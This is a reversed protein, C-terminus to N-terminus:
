CHDDVIARPSRYWARYLIPYVDMELRIRERRRVTEGSRVDSIERGGLKTPFRRNVPTIESPYVSDCAYIFCGGQNLSSCACGM